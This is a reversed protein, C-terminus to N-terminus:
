GQVQSGVDTGWFTFTMSDPPAGKETESIDALSRRLMHGTNQAPDLPSALHFGPYAPTFLHQPAPSAEKGSEVQRKGTEKVSFGWRPDDQPTNPEWNELFM